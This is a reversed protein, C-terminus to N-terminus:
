SEVWRLGGPLDIATYDIHIVRRRGPVTSRSSAHLLLPSLLLAGGAKIPCIEEGLRSRVESIESASLRGLRHSRPVLRLAGNDADADDLHLRVAVISQLVNVPAQVHVVGEKVSWPGFGEVKIRKEVAITLDQHFPVPWNSAETKDFLTAKVPRARFGLVEKAVAHAPGHCALELVPRSKALLGRVGGRKEPITPVFEIAEALGALEDADLLPDVVAFGDVSLHDLIKRSM